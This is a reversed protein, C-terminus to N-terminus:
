TSKRDRVEIVTSEDMVGTDHSVPLAPLPLDAAGHGGNPQGRGSLRAQRDTEGSALRSNPQGSALKAPW